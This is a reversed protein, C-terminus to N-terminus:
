QVTIYNAVPDYKISLTGASAKTYVCNGDGDTNGSVNSNYGGVAGSWEHGKVVKFKVTTNAPVNDKTWLYTGDSQKTMNTSTNKPDWEAGFVSAPTGAISYELEGTPQTYAVSIKGNTPDFTIVLDGKGAVLEYNGNEGDGGWEGNAYAHDKVIKFSVPTPKDSNVKYTKSKYTGDSQKTMDNAAATPDWEVGFVSAPGGVVTYVDSVEEMNVKGVYFKGNEFLVGPKTAVYKNKGVTATLTYTDAKGSDNRLAVYFEDVDGDTEIELNDYMVSMDAAISNVLKGSTAEITLVEPYIRNGSEDLFTFVIIAQQNKFTAPGTTVNTGNVSTVSVTAMSYCYKTNVSSFTGDQNAYLWNEKPALLRLETGPTLASTTISGKLVSSSEGKSQPKLTGIATNDKYVTIVDTNAWYSYLMRMSRMLAKTAPSDAPGDMSADVSIEYTVLDPASESKNCSSLAVLGLIALSLLILKKMM